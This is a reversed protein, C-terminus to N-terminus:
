TNKFIFKYRTGKTKDLTYEGDLQETFTEILELGFSDEKQNPKWTGNDAYVMQLGKENKSFIIDIKNDKENDFAYKLSNSLLENMILSLPVIQNLTIIDIESSIHLTVFDNNSYNQIISEALEKFYQKISIDKVEDDKYMQEHILAMASIRNISEEFPKKAVDDSLKFQQLRLLSTIVQLNNKVRHHIEKLMINKEDFHKQLEINTGTLKKNMTLADRQAIGSQILFQNVMYAFFLTCITLNITFDIYAPLDYIQSAPRLELLNIKAGFTIVILTVINFFLYINGVWRGLTFFTFLTLNIIWFLDIFNEFNSAGFLNYTNLMFGFISAIFAPIVFSKSKYFLFIVVGASIAGLGTTLLNDGDTFLNISFLLVMSICTFFLVNRTVLFKAKKYSSIM